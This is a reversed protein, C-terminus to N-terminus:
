DYPVRDPFALIEGRNPSPNTGEGGPQGGSIVYLTGEEDVMLGSYISYDIQMDLKLTNTATAGIASTASRIDPGNGLAFVRFNNVGPAITQGAQAADAYGDAIRLTGTTPDGTTCSDKGGSNDAFSIIMSPTPGLPLPSSFQGETGQTPADDTIVFSRALAAYVVNHPGTALAVVNGFTPTLSATVGGSANPAASSFNTVRVGNGNT